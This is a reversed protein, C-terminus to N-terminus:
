CPIKTRKKQKGAYAAPGAAGRNAKKCAPAWIITINLRIFFPPHTHNNRSLLGDKCYARVLLIHTMILRFFRVIVIM